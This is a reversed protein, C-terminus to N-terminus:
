PVTVEKGRSLTFGVQGDGVIVRELSPSPLAWRVDHLRGGPRCAAELMDDGLGTPLYAVGRTADVVFGHNALVEAGREEPALGLAARLTARRRLM